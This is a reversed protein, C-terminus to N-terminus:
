RGSTYYLTINIINSTTTTGSIKVAAVTVYRVNSDDSVSIDYPIGKTARNVTAQALATGFASLNSTLGIDFVGTAAGTSHNEVFDLITCGHPVRALLIVDGASISTAGSNYNVTLATVGEHLKRIQNNAVSTSTYTIAAM